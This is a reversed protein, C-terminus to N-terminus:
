SDGWNPNNPVCFPYVDIDTSLEQIRNKARRAYASRRYKEVLMAKIEATALNMFPDASNPGDHIRQSGKLTATVIDFDSNICRLFHDSPNRKRPCPFGAEAFFIAGYGLNKKKGNLLVNGTMVVNKSLRGALADLLTSKGSGSPGMIAMIRGPEAYGNLGNLLRKTPGKGFNPLVVRLDEWALFTGRDFGTYPVERETAGWNGGKSSDTPTAAEIEM